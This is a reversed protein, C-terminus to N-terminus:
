DEITVTIGANAFFFREGFTQEFQIAKKLGTCHSVGIKEFSFRKLAQLTEDLQVDTLFGAHTGGLIMYVAEGPLHKMIHNLTNILGAHACGLLIVLGRPTRLVLSQDDRLSDSLVADGDKIVLRPDNKEFSTTRPVEGTLFIGERIETFAKNFVFRAGLSELRSKNVPPGVYKFAKHGGKDMIAYRDSFIDPHAYVDASGAQELVPVLGGTHDYHGHSLCIASLRGLDKKLVGANHVITRGQGTDFLFMEGDREVLVAFGHEGLIELSAAATNECLITLATM